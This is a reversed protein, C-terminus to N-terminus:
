RSLYANRNRHAAAIGQAFRAQMNEITLDKTSSSVGRRLKELMKPDLARVIADSMSSEDNQTFTIGNTGDLIYNFEPGHYTRNSHTVIPLGYAFAHNASLGIAGPYVFLDSMMFLPALEPEEYIAGTFIVNKELRLDAAQQKLKSEEPGAGVIILNVPQGLTQAINKLSRLLQDLHAKETLRSVTILNHGAPIKFNEKVRDIEDPSINSMLNHIERSDISNQLGILKKPDFGENVFREVGYDTYLMVMDCRNMLWKRIMIRVPDTAGFTYSQGWWIIPIRKIKCSILLYIVTGLLGTHGSIVVTDGARPWELKKTPIQIPLSRGFLRLIKWNLNYPPSNEVVTAPSGDMEPCANVVVQHKPFLNVLGEFFPVRYKPIVPQWILIRPEKAM